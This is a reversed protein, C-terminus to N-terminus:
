KSRFGALKLISAVIAWFIISQGEGTSFNVPQGNYYLGLGAGTIIAFMLTPIHLSVLWNLFRQKM